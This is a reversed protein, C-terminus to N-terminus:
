HHAARLRRSQYFGWRSTSLPAHRATVNRVAVHRQLDVLKMNSLGGSSIAQPVDRGAKQARLIVM